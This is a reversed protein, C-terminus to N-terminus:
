ANGGLEKLRGSLVNITTEYHRCLANLENAKNVVLQLQQNLYAIQEEPTAPRTEPEEVKPQEAEKENKNDKKKSMEIM